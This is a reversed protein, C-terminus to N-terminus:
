VALENLSSSSDPWGYQILETAMAILLCLGNNRIGWDEPVQTSTFPKLGIVLLEGQDSITKRLISLDADTGLRKDLHDLLDDSKIHEWVEDVTIDHHRGTDFARNINFIFYTISTLRLQQMDPKTM